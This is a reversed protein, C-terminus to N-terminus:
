YVIVKKKLSVTESVLSVIYVGSHLSHFQFQTETTHHAEFVQEGQLDFLALSFPSYINRLLLLGHVPDFNIAADAATEAIGTPLEYHVTLQVDDVEASDNVGSNTNQASVFVGFTPSNVDQPTWTTDWLDFVGGYFVVTVGYSSWLDPYAKNECIAINDKMLIVSSDRVYGYASRRIVAPEIGTIVANNPISFGYNSTMIGRTFFCVTQFCDPNQMLNCTAYMGDPNIGDSLNSWESGACALCGAYQENVTLAINPGQSYQQSFIRTESILFLILFSIITKM